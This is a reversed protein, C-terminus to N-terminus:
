PVINGGSIEVKWSETVADNPESQIADAFVELVQRYGTEADASM